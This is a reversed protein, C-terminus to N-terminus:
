TYLFPAESSFTERQCFKNLPSRDVTRSPTGDQMRTIVIRHSWQTPEGHPVKEFIGLAEDWLLDEHVKAQWHLPVSAPTHVAVPKTAPDVHIEIPPSVM